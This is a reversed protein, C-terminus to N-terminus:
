FIVMMCIIPLLFALVALMTKLLINGITKLQVKTIM